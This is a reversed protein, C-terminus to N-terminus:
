KDEKFGGFFERFSIQWLCYGYGERILDYGRSFIGLSLLRLAVNILFELTVRILYVPWGHPSIPDFFASFKEVYKTCSGKGLLNLIDQKIDEVAHDDMEM